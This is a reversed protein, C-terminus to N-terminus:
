TNPTHSRLKAAVLYSMGLKCNHTELTLFWLITVFVKLKSGYIEMFRLHIAPRTNQIALRTNVSVASRQLYYEWIKSTARSKLLGGTKLLGGAGSRRYWVEQM